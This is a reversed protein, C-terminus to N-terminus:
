FEFELQTETNEILWKKFWNTKALFYMEPQKMQDFGFTKEHNKMYMPCYSCAGNCTGYNRIILKAQKISKEKDTLM